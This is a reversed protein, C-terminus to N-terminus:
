YNGVVTAETLTILALMTQLSGSLNRDMRSPQIKFLYDSPDAQELRSDVTTDSSMKDKIFICLPNRLNFLWLERVM